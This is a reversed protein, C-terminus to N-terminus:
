ITLVDRIVARYFEGQGTDIVYEEGSLVMPVDKMVANQHRQVMNSVCEEKYENKRVVKTVAFNMSRQVMVIVFEKENRTTPVDRMVACRQLQVMGLVYGEMSLKTLVDEMAALQRGLINRVMDYVYGGVSNTTPVDMWRVYVNKGSQYSRGTGEVYEERLSEMPVDKMNAFTSRLLQVTHVAYELEKPLNPVDTQM